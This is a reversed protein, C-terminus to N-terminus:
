ERGGIDFSRYGCDRLRCHSTQALHDRAGGTPPSADTEFYMRRKPVSCLNFSTGDRRWVRHHARDDLPNPEPRTPGSWSPPNRRRGVQIDWLSSQVLAHLLLLVSRNAVRRESPHWRCDAGTTGESKADKLLIRGTLPSASVNHRDDAPRLRSM